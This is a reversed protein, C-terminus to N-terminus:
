EKTLSELYKWFSQHQEIMTEERYPLKMRFVFDMLTHRNLIYHSYLEDGRVEFYIRYDGARLRYFTKGDRDFRGLSESGRQLTRETLNSFEDIIPMQVEIPLRNLEAMSQDSFTVQYM